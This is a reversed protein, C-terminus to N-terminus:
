VYQMGFSQLSLSYRPLDFSTADVGRSEAACQLVVCQLVSCCVYQLVSGCVAVCLMGFSLPSPPYCDSDFSTAGVGRSESWEQRNSAAVIGDGVCVGM